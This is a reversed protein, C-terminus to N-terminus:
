HVNVEFKANNKCKLLVSEILFILWFELKTTGVSFMKWFWCYEQNRICICPAIM